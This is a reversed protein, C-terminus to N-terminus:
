QADYWGGAHVCVDEEGRGVVAELVINTEGHLSSSGVIGDEQITDGESTLSPRSKVSERGRPELDRIAGVPQRCRAIPFQRRVDVSMRTIQTSSVCMTHPWTLDYM